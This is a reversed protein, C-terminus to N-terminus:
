SAAALDRRMAILAEALNFWRLAPYAAHGTSGFTAVGLSCLASWLLQILRAWGISQGFEILPFPPPASSLVALVVAAVACQAFLVKIALVANSPVMVRAAHRVREATVNVARGNTFACGIATVLFSWILFTPVVSTYPAKANENQLESVWDLGRYNLFLWGIMTLTVVAFLQRGFAVFGARLIGGFAQWYTM